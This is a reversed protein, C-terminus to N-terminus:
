EVKDSEEEKKEGREVKAMKGPKTAVIQVSTQEQKLSM